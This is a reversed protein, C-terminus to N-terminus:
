ELAQFSAIIRNLESTVKAQDRNTFQKIQGPAYVAFNTYTVATALEFCKGKDFGWYRNFEIDHSMAAGGDLTHRFKIGDIVQTRRSRGLRYEANAEESIVGKGSDICGQETTASLITVEVSASGFTTGAFRKPPYEFCVASDAHCVPIYSDSAKETGTWVRYGPPVSLCFSQNPDIYEGGSWIVNTAFLLILLRRM